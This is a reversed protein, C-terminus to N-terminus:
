STPTPTSDYEVEIGYINCNWVIETNLNDWTSRDGFLILVLKKGKHYNSYVLLQGLGHMWNRARKVEYIHTDTVIDIRGVPSPVVRGTVKDRLKDVIVLDEPVVSPLLLGTSAEFVKDKHIFVPVELGPDVLMQTTEALPVEMSGGISQSYKEQVLRERPARPKPKLREVPEGVGLERLLEYAPISGYCTAGVELCNLVQIYTRHSTGAVPNHIQGWKKFTGGDLGLFKDLARLPYALGSELKDIEVVM